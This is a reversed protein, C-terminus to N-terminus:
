NDSFYGRLYSVGERRLDDRQLFRLRRDGRFLLLQLVEESRQRAVLREVGGRAVEDLVTPGDGALLEFSTSLVYTCYTM